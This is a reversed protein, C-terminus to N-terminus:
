QWAEDTIITPLRCLFFHVKRVPFGLAANLRDRIEDRIGRFELMWRSDRVGVYLDGEDSFRLPM